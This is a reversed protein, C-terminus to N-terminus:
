SVLVAGLIEEALPEVPTEQWRGSGDIIFSILLVQPRPLGWRNSEVGMKKAQAAMEGAPPDDFNVGVM